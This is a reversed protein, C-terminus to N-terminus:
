VVGKLNWIWGGKGNPRRPRFDKPQYRVMYFSVAGKENTYSYEAVIKGLKGKHEPPPKPKGTLKEVADNFTCGDLFMVLKIVDGAANKRRAKQCGRCRFLKKKHTSTIVFRDEGGCEPCPGIYGGKCPTLRLDLRGSAYHAIDVARAEAVWLDYAVSSM